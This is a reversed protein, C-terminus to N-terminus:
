CGCSWMGFSDDPLEGFEEKLREFIRERIQDHSKYADDDYSYAKQMDEYFKRYKYYDETNM